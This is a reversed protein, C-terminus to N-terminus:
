EAAKFFATKLLSWLVTGIVGMAAAIGALKAKSTDRFYELATVRGNTKIAQTEISLCRADVRDFREDMRESMGTIASHLGALQADLSQPDFTYPKARQRKSAM